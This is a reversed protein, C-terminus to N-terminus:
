AAAARRRQMDDLIQLLERPEAPKELFHDFGCGLALLRDPPRVWKGSIAVMLPRLTGYIQHLERAIAYGSQAPMEIDLICLDPQFEQVSDVVGAGSNLTRVIHGDQELLAGLTLTMDPNDDAILIRLPSGRRQHATNM